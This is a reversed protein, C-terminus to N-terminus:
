SIYCIWALRCDCVAVEGGTGGGPSISLVVNNKSEPGNAVKHLFRVYDTFVTAFTRKASLMMKNGMESASSCSNTSWRSRTLRLYLRSMLTGCVWEFHVVPAIANGDSSSRTVAVNLIYLFTWSIQAHPKLFIRTSVSLRVYICVRQDCYNAGWGSIFFYCKYGYRISTLV